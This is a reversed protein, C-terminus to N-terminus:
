DLLIITRKNIYVSFREDLNEKKYSYKGEQFLERTCKRVTNTIKGGYFSEM